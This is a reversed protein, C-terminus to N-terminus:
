KRALTVKQGRIECRNASLVQDAYADPVDLYTEDQFISIAGISKGPINAQKAITHVVDGPRVGGNKGLNMRIRTMGVEHSRKGRQRRGKRRNGNDQARSRKQKHDSVQGIEKIEPQTEDARLLYLAAKAVQEATAGAEIFQNLLEDQSDPALQAIQKELRQRFAGARQELVTAKTPLTDHEIKAKTYKEIRHLRGREKATIITIADGARGARGTRGIRHVYEAPQQPINYNIVHSVQPVDVGRAVVDTGVLINYTGDRFRNLIREREDQALDGHIAAAPFGQETLQGALEATEARTRAFVLTNQVEETELLRCLAALRDHHRVVYYRQRVNNQTMASAEVEIRLPDSMYQRAMQEVRKPLTASFLVTQRDEAGTAGIIAEIDEQFGMKLMEDAEDLVLFRVRELKLAKKNILDLTRGPTGVVVNVGKKLRKIQRGYSQQGYVPLVRLGLKSGYTHVSKAVQNALERTPVLVLMQLEDASIQQVLPLTFAATKGTGTQSQGMIDHGSLLPPIAKAQIPTPEAYGLEELTQLLDPILGLDQFNQQM